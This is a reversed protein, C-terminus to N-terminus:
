REVAEQDLCHSSKKEFSILTPEEQQQHIKPPTKLFKRLNKIRKETIEIKKTYIYILIPAFDESDFIEIGEDLLQCKDSLKNAKIWKHYWCFYKLHQVTTQFPKLINLADTESLQFINDIESDKMSKLDKVSECLNLVTIIGPYIQEKIYRELLITLAAWALGMFILVKVMIEIQGIAEILLNEQEAFFDSHPLIFFEVEITQDYSPSSFSDKYAQSSISLFDRVYVVSPLFKNFYNTTPCSYISRAHYESTASIFELCEELKTQNIEVQCINDPMGSSVISAIKQAVTQSQKGKLVRDVTLSYAYNGSHEVELPAYESVTCVTGGIDMKGCIM